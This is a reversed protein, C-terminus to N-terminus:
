FRQRVNRIYCVEFYMNWAVIHDKDWGRLTNRSQTTDFHVQDKRRLTNMSCTIWKPFFNPLDPLPDKGSISFDSISTGETACRFICTGLKLIFRIEAASCTGLGFQGYQSFTPIVHLPDNVLCFLIKSLPEMHLAGSLVPELSWHSGWRKETAHEWVSNDM